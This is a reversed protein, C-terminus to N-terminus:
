CREPLGLDFASSRTYDTMHAATQCPHGHVFGATRGRLTFKDIALSHRPRRDITGTLYNWPPCTAPECGAHRRMKAIYPSILKMRVLALIYRGPMSVLLALCTLQPREYVVICLLM